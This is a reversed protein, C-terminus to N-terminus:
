DQSLPTVEIQNPDTFITMFQDSAEVVGKVDQSFLIDATGLNLDCCKLIDIDGHPQNQQKIKLGLVNEYVLEWSNFAEYSDGVYMEFSEDVNM